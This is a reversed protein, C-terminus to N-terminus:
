GPVRDFVDSGFPALGPPAAYGLHGLSFLDEISRLLSYHNYGTANLQHAPDAGGPSTFPSIVVAGSDGGGSGPIGAQNGPDSTAPGPQENCCSLNEVAEDFTIVLLGDKRFVPSQVIPPVYRQLFGDIQTLAIEDATLPDAGLVGPVPSNCADHGDDCQNPVIYSFNPATADSSLITRLDDPSPLGVVNQTCQDTQRISDFLVFPSHKRRYDGKAGPARYSAKLYCPSPMDQNYSKWTLGASTLQDGITTFNPPYLCGDGHAINYPPDAQPPVRKPNDPGASPDDPCDNQGSPTPPQGSIMAIYNDASSHGVGYYQTLLQGEPVLTRNLYPALLQGQLGFTDGFEHNELVIVFVHRVPPLAASAPAAGALAALASAALLLRRM